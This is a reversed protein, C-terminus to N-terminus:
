KKSKLSSLVHRSTTRALSENVNKLLHVRYHKKGTHTVITPTFSPTGVRVSVSTGTATKTFPIQVIGGIDKYNGEQGSLFNGLSYLVLTERGNEGRIREMPQLVHPHHGIVVDAGADALFHALQKQEENPYRQYETGWHVSVIAFDAIKKIEKIEEEMKRYDILNVLFRKSKPVPIGNTGYTYGLFGFRIGNRNIVRPTLSDRNSKYAGVYVIGKKEYFQIANVIGKEGRDLAHNNAMNVIDIGAHILAEGAEYPSNFSPYSSVRLSSGGLISEQNIYSLDAKEFLPRVEELMPDFNYTSPGTAADEYLQSHILYDGASSLLATGEFSKYSLSFERLPQDETHGANKEERNTCSILCVAMLTMLSIPLMKKM